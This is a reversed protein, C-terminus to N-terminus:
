TCCSPEVAKESSYPITFTQIGSAYPAIEYLQFYIVVGENSLYFNKTNFNEKVLDAYDTFFMTNDKKQEDEIKGLIDKQISVTYNEMDPFFDSLELRIGKQLNWTDSSRYTMGHAGGTYEYRDFYLSLTCNNNYTVNYEVYVEYEHVPFDNAISNEYDDMAMQYLKMVQTRRYMSAEAKYFLNLKTLFLKFKDSVFQPYKITYTMILHGKYYMDKKIAHEKATLTYSTM